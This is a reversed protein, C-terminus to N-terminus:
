LKMTRYLRQGDFHCDKDKAMEELMERSYITGDPRPQGVICCVYEYRKKKFMKKINKILTHM